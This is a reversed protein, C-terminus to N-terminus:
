KSVSRLLPVIQLLAKGPRMNAMRMSGDWHNSVNATVAGVLLIWAEPVPEVEKKAL